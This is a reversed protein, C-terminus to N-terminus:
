GRDRMMELRAAVLNIKQVGTPNSSIAVVHNAVYWDHEHALEELINMLQTGDDYINESGLDHDLLLFDFMIGKGFQLFAEDYTRILTVKVDSEALGRMANLFIPSRDKAIQLALEVTREDDIILINM